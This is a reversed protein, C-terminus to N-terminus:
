KAKSLLSLSIGLSIGWECWSILSLKVFHFLFFFAVVLFFVTYYSLVLTCGLSKCSIGIFKLVNYVPVFNTM